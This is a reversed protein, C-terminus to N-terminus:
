NLPIMMISDVSADVNLFQERKEGFTESSMTPKVLSVGFTFVTLM